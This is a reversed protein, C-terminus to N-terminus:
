GWGECSCDGVGCGGPGYHFTEAHEDRDHECYQCQKWGYYPDREPDGTHAYNALDAREQASYGPREFPNTTTVSRDGM